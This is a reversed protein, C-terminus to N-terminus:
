ILFCFRMFYFLHSPKSIVTLAIKVALSAIDISLIKVSVIGDLARRQVNRNQGLWQDCVRNM